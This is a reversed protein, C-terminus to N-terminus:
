GFLPSEICDEAKCARIYYRGTINFLERVSLKQEAKDLVKFVTRDENMLYFVVGEDEVEVNVLLSVPKHAVFFPITTYYRFGNSIRVM